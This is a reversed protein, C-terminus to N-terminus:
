NTENKKNYIPYLKMAVSLQEYFGGNQQDINWIEKIKNLRYRITNEHLILKEATVKINGNQRIYEEATPLLSSNYKADYELVPLITKQYFKYYWIDKLHPFIVQYIGLDEFASYDRGSIEGFQMAYMSECICLDLESLQDHFSSVAIHFEDKKIGCRCLIQSILAERKAKFESATIIFLIGDKYHFVSSYKDLFRKAYGIQYQLHTDSLYTKPRCFISFCNEEFLSNLEMAMSRVMSACVNREALTQLKIEQAELSESEKIRNAIQTVINEIPGSSKDFILIPFNMKDAYDIVDKGLGDYYINKIALGSAQDEILYEVAKLIEGPDDKAFLMSTVIFSEKDFKCRKHGSRKALDFEYDLVNVKKVPNNLGRNGAILNFKSFTSLQLIDFVAVGM